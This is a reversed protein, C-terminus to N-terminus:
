TDSKQNRSKARQNKRHYGVAVVILTIITLPIVFGAMVWGFRSLEENHSAKLVLFLVYVIYYALFLVGEWRSIKQGSFFVPLCAFAVVTMIPLDFRISNAGVTLGEPAFIGSLGVILVINLISSGVANGVAIEQEGKLSAIVSTAMEPLSTGAAIITLGIVMESIGLQRAITVASDVLWNSGLILGALGAAIYGCYIYWKRRLDKKEDGASSLSGLKTKEEKTVRLGYYVSFFLYGIAGAFLIIGDVLDILRDLSMLLFVVSVLIMIPVDVRILQRSVALPTIIASLGLILLVNIINSGIVNGLAIDVQGVICSHLSVALEPSSTGIAVVTLGIILPSLGLGLALRSAGRILFEAGAILLIFGGLLLLITMDM